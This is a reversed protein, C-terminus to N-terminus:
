KKILSLIQTKIEVVRNIAQQPTDGFATIPAYILYSGDPSVFETVSTEKYESKNGYKISVYDSHIYTKAIFQFPKNVLEDLIYEAISACADCYSNGKLLNQKFEEAKEKNSFVGQISKDSYEGTTLIYINM